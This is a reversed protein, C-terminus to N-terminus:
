DVINVTRYTPLKFTKGEYTLTYTITYSNIAETNKPTGDANCPISCSISLSPNSIIGDTGKVTIDDKINSIQNDSNDFFADTSKSYRVPNYSFTNTFTAEEPKNTKVEVSTGNSRVIWDNQWATKVTYTADYDKRTVTMTTSTTFGLSTEEGTKNNKELVEYGWPGLANKREQLNEDVHKAFYIENLKKLNEDDYYGPISAADWKLVVSKDTASSTLSTVNPLKNFRESTGSPLSKRACYDTAKMDDPTNEGPLLAPMTEKEITVRTVSSPVKFGKNGSKDDSVIDVVKRFIENKARGSANTNYYGEELTDYGYWIAVSYEPTYGVTWMDNVASSPFKYQRLISSTFNTTGTKAALKVGRVRGGINGYGEVAWILSDTIMFATSDSMAKETKNKLSVTKGTDIYEVKTVTYPKTFYGGNGFAAYAGAMQVPNSGNFAGLAHAEHIYGNDDIEPEIGLGTVFEKIKSNEVSHFAKVAPINRSEGLAVKLTLNGEFRGDWNKLSGGSNYSYPGDFFQTNECYGNYEIAPGYDFLPKATSGIQKNIMTAYNFQREGTRNRGGGVAILKGTNIDVVAIGAQIKDDKWEFTEGDMIDQIEKQKRTDLNTYIKMATTYPSKKTKEEVEDIVIDIYSQYENDEVMPNTKMVIDTVPMASVINYEEETIYGHKQMLYLVTDRRNQTAEPHRYPDYASPAQFLGAIISAEALGIDSVSKGFYTQCAQEVGYSENGLFSTNVYYEMIEQKSYNKEIKFIAMYIDTFKRTISVESTTYNNKNVQMTITSGGGANAGRGLLKNVVQGVAAKTFRPLDFGNHQFYRSDETAVIADVLVEPLDDYTVKKRKEIGLKAIEKGDKDYIISSEARYLKEPDFDPAKIVIYISFVISITLILLIGVLCINFLGKILKRNRRRKQEKTLQKKERKLFKLNLKPKSGTSKKKKIIKKM